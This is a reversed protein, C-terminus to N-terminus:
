IIFSAIAFSLMKEVINYILDTLTIAIFDKEM